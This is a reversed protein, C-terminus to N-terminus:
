AAARPRAVVVFFQGLAQLAAAGSLRQDLAFLARAVGAPLKLFLEPSLLTLPQCVDVEFGHAEFLRVWAVRRYANLEEFWTAYEGHAPPLPFQRYRRRFLSWSMPEAAAANEDDITTERAADAGAPRAKQLIRRLLYAHFRFPAPIAWMTGPVAHVTVGGPALVRRIEDLCASQDPVHELVFLSFVLDFAGNAFPLSHGSAAAVDCWDLDLGDLLRRAHRLDVSHTHVDHRYLDTAVVQRRGGAILASAFANGCGLELTRGAQAFDYVRGVADMELARRQFHRPWTQLHPFQRLARELVAAMGKQVTARPGSVGSGIPIAQEV